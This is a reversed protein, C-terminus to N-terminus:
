MELPSHLTEDAKKEKKAQKSQKTTALFLIKRENREKKKGPNTKLQSSTMWSDDTYKLKNMNKKFEYFSHFHWRFNDPAHQLIKPTTRSSTPLRRHTMSSVQGTQAQENEQHRKEIGDRGGGEKNQRKLKWKTRHTTKHYPITHSHNKSNPTHSNLVNLLVHM